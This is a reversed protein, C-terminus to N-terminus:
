NATAFGESTIYAWIFMGGAGKNLDCGVPRYGPLDPPSEEPTIMFFLHFIPRASADTKWFMYIYKGASGDNLNSKNWQWGPRPNEQQASDFAIFDVDTIPSSKGRKWGAYIYKGGVSKNLDAKSFEWGANPEPGAADLSQVTLEVLPDIAKTDMPRRSDGAGAAFGLTITM